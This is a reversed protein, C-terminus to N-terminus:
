QQPEVMNVTKTKSADVSITVVRNRPEHVDDATPVPLNTEGWAKETIEFKDPTLGLYSAVANARKRSLAVNYSQAGTTDAHGGLYLKGYDASTLQNRAHDLKDKADATLDYRDHAFYVRFVEKLKMPVQTSVVTTAVSTDLRNIYKGFQKRCDTMNHSADAEASQHLSWCDYAVLAHAYDKPQTQPANNNLANVLLQHGGVLDQETLGSRFVKVDSVPRPLLPYGDLARKGAAYLYTSDGVDYSSDEDFAQTRYLANTYRRLQPSAAGAGDKLEQAQVASLAGGAIMATLVALKAM